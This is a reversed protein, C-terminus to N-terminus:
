VNIHYATFRCLNQREYNVFLEIWRSIMVGLCHWKEMLGLFISCILM